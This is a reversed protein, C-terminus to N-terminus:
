RAARGFPLRLMARRREPTLAHSRPTALLRRLLLTATLRAAQLRVPGTNGVGSASRPAHLRKIGWSDNGSQCEGWLAFALRSRLWEIYELPGEPPAVIAVPDGWRSRAQVTREQRM